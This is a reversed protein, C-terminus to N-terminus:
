FLNKLFQLYEQQIEIPPIGSERRLSITQGLKGFLKDCADFMNIDPLGKDRLYHILKLTRFGDFWLKKQLQIQDEKGSNKLINEWDNEFNNLKLFEFLRVDIKKAEALYKEPNTDERSNFFELWNKLIEFSGPNYLLYENQTGSLFRDIRQGTGFPVRWSKRASPYVKTTKLRGIQTVKALKEMFYFDEGAKRKNMGGSKIYNEYDVTITSGITHFAYPSKAYKLGLVYYRLFIEYNTIAALNEPDVPKQHEFEVVAATYNYKNYNARIEKLYNQDVSCDADLCAIIKKSGSAYNFVTLAFDMGTKRALGVGALKEPFEKGPSSADIYTLDFQKINESRNKLYEILEKNETRIKDNATESNNVVFLVLTTGPNINNELSNLLKKANGYESIAPIVVVLDYTKPPIIEADRLFESNRSLYKQVIGPLSNFHMIKNSIETHSIM